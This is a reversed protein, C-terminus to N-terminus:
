PKAVREFDRIQDSLSRGDSRKIDEVFNGEADHISWPGPLPDEDCLVQGRARAETFTACHDASSEYGYMVFYGGPPAEAVPGPSQGPQQLATGERSNVPTVM